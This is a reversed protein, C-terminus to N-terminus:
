EGARSRSPAGRERLVASDEGSPRAEGGALGKEIRQRLSVASSSGKANPYEDVLRDLTLRAQAYDGVDAYSRALVMMAERRVLAGPYERVLKELRTIAGLHEEEDVYFTAVQWEHRALKDEARQRMAAAPLRWPDDPRLDALMDRFHNRARLTYEQDNEPRESQRFLCVGVQYRAYSSMEHTPYFSLFQEYRSQAEIANISGGRYFYSDAIALKVYPDLEPSVANTLGVEGLRESANFFQGQAIDIRAQRYLEENDVVLERDDDRWWCGSTLGVILALAALRRLTRGNM